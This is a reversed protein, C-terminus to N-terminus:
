EYMGEWDLLLEYDTVEFLQQKGCYYFRASSHVYDTSSSALKWKGSVPNNHIYHLKQLLFNKTRCEKAEFSDKWTTHLQGKQRDKPQVDRHLQELLETEQKRKLMDVIEYAMFRKGNGILTNLSSGMGSYHLLLHVHNPMICYATVLHGKSKLVEFFTYVANYGDAKEILPLWNHCTFTIFYIGKSTVTTHVPMAPFIYLRFWLWRTV